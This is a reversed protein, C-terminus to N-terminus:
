SPTTLAAHLAKVQARTSELSGSNDIVHDARAVKEQLPVQASIRADIAAESIGDRAARSSASAPGGDM